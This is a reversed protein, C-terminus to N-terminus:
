ATASPANPPSAPSNPLTTSKLCTASSSPTRAVTTTASSSSPRPTTRSTASAHCFASSSAVLPLPRRPANRPRPQVRAPPRDIRKLAAKVNPPVYGLDTALGHPHGQQSFVFGCPDAADHPITFPCVDLDGITFSTAPRFYEVAPLYTPDLKTLEGPTRLNATKQPPARRPSAPARSRDRCRRRQPLPRPQRSRGVLALSQGRTSAVDPARSPRCRPTPRSQPLPPLEARALKEAALRDLWKAYTMTTRPTLMRVWARHTPETFFVPIRSAVPLCPLVPSTIRISTPSSSPTSANRPRRRRRGHPPPARPLLPRCRGPRPHPRHQHRDINGKSGSALVTM